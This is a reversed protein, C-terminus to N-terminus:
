VFPVATFVCVLQHIAHKTFCCLLLFFVCVCVCARVCLSMAEIYRPEDVFVDYLLVMVFVCLVLLAFLVFFCVRM